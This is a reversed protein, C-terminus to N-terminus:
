DRQVDGHSSKLSLTCQSHATFNQYLLFSFTQFLALIVLIHCLSVFHACATPSIAGISKILATNGCVKLKYFVCYRRLAIFRPIETAGTFGVSTESFWIAEMKLAFLSTIGVV